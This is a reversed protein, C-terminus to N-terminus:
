GCTLAGSEFGDVYICTVDANSAPKFEIFSGSSNNYTALVEPKGVIVNDDKWQSVGSSHFGDFAIVITDPDSVSRFESFTSSGMSYQALVSEQTQPNHVQPPIEVNPACASLTFATTLIAASAIAAKALNM